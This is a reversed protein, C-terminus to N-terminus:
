KTMAGLGLYACVGQRDSCKAYKFVRYKDRLKVGQLSTVNEQGETGLVNSMLSPIYSDTASRIADHCEPTGVETRQAGFTCFYIIAKMYIIKWTSLRM